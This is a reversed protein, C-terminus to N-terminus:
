VKFHPVRVQPKSSHQIQQDPQLLPWMRQKPNNDVHRHLTSSNHLNGYVQEYSNYVPIKTVQASASPPQPKSISATNVRSALRELALRQKKFASAKRFAEDHYSSGVNTM